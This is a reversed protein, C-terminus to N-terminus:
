QPMEALGSGNRPLMRLFYHNLRASLTLPQGTNRVVDYAGLLGREPLEPFAENLPCSAVALPEIGLRETLWRDAHIIRWEGDTVLLGYPIADLLANSFLLSYHRHTM